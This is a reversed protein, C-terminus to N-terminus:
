CSGWEVRRKELNSDDGGKGIRGGRKRLRLFSHCSKSAAAERRGKRRKEEQRDGDGDRQHTTPHQMAFASASPPRISKQGGGMGDEAAKKRSKRLFPRLNATSEGLWDRHNGNSLTQRPSERSDGMKEWKGVHALLRLVILKSPFFPFHLFPFLPVFVAALTGM